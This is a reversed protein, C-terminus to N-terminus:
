YNMKWGDKMIAYICFQLYNDNPNNEMTNKCSETSLDLEGSQATLKGFIDTYFGFVDRGYKNPGKACNVDIGYYLTEYYGSGFNICSGDPLAYYEVEYSEGDVKLSVKKVFKIHKELEPKNFFYDTYLGSSNDAIIYPTNELSDVMNESKMGNLTNLIFNVDKKLQTAWVQKQHKAILSPMTLAAVVGIIGLTILVEALTFAFKKSRRLPYFVEALTFAFKKSQKFMFDEQKFYIYSSERVYM